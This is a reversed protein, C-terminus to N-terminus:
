THLSDIMVQFARSEVSVEQELERALMVVPPNIAHGDVCGPLEGLGDEAM